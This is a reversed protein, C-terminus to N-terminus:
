IHILSLMSTGTGTSTSTSEGSGFTEEVDFSKEAEAKSQVDPDQSITDLDSAVETDTRTDIDMEFQPNIAKGFAIAKEKEKASKNPDTAISKATAYSGYFGTQASAAMAKGFDDISAYSPVGFPDGAQGHSYTAGTTPDVQGNKYGKTFSPAVGLARTAAEYSMGYMAQSLAENRDIGQM